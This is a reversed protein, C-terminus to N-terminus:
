ASLAKALSEILKRESETYDAERLLLDLIRRAMARERAGLTDQMDSWLQEAGAYTEADAALAAGVMLVVQGFLVRAAQLEGARFASRGRGFEAQFLLTLERQSPAFSDRQARLRAVTSECLQIPSRAFPPQLTPERLVVRREDRESLSYALSSILRRESESYYEDRSLLQLLRRALAREQVGIKDQMERWLQAAASFTASDAALAAGAMLAAQAFVIRAIALESSHLADLSRGYVPCLVEALERNTPAFGARQARATTMADDMRISPTTTYVDTSWPWRLARHYAGHIRGGQKVIWSPACSLSM